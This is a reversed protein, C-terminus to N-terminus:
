TFAKMVILWSVKLVPTVVDSKFKSINNNALNMVAVYEYGKNMGPITELKNGELDLIVRSMNMPNIIGPAHTLNRRNCDVFLARDFPKYYCDCPSELHCPDEIRPARSEVALCKFDQFNIELVRSSAYWSPRVCKLDMVDLHLSKSTNPHMWHNVYRLLGYIDCDCNLPNDALKVNVEGKFNNDHLIQELKNLNVEYIKNNTLDLEVKM